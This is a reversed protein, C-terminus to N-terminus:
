NMVENIEIIGFETDITAKVILKRQANQWDTNFFLVNKVYKTGEIRERIIKKAMDIDRSAIIKQWLPIGDELAEWWEYILQRLRTIVAQQVAYSDKVFSQANGGFTYDGNDDLKRYIM